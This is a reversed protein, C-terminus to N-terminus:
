IIHAYNLILFCLTIISHTKVKDNSWKENYLSKIVKKLIIYKDVSSVTKKAASTVDSKVGFTALFFLFANVGLIYGHWSLYVM